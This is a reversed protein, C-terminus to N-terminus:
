RGRVIWRGWLALIVKDEDRVDDLEFIEEEKEVVNWALLGCEEMTPLGILDYLRPGGIRCSYHIDGYPLYPYQAAPGLPDADPPPPTPYRSPSCDRAVTFTTSVSRTRSPTTTTPAPRFPIYHQYKFKVHVPSETQPSSQAKAPAEEPISGLVSVTAAPTTLVDQDGSRETETTSSHLTRSVSAQLSTTSLTYTIVRLVFVIAVCRVPLGDDEGENDPLM